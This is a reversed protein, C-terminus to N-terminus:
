RLTIHKVLLKIVAKYKKIMTSSLPITKLKKSQMQTLVMQVEVAAVVVVAVAVVAAAVVVTILCPLQPQDKNKKLHTEEKKM